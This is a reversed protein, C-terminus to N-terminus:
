EVSLKLGTLAFLLLMSYRGTILSFITIARLANIITSYHLSFDKCAQLAHIIFNYKRTYEVRESSILAIVKIDM